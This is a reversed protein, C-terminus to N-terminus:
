AASVPAHIPRFITQPMWPSRICAFGSMLADHASYTIKNSQRHEMGISFYRKLMNWRVSFNGDNEPLRWICHLHDPLVVLGDMRYPHKYMVYRFAAKM